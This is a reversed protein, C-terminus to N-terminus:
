LRNSPLPGRSKWIAGPSVVTPEVGDLCTGVAESLLRPKVYSKKRKTLQGWIPGTVVLSDFTGITPNCGLHAM